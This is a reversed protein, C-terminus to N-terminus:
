GWDTRYGNGGTPWSFIIADRECVFWCAACEMCESLTSVSAKGESIKFCGALCVRLCRACGDCSDGDVRIFPQPTREWEVGPFRKSARRRDPNGNGDSMTLWGTRL